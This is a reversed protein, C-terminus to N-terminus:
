RASASTTARGYPPLQLFLVAAALLLLSGLVFAMRYSGTLDHSVGMWVPSSGACLIFAAYQWGYVRGFRELGFYRTVLYGILDGEAGMAAGLGIAGGMAAAAGGSLLAVFGGVCVLCIAVAIHPAFFRDILWGTILRSGLLSVGIVGALSGAQSPTLGADILMPVFHSLMGAFGVAMTCLALMLLCFTRREPPSLGVSPSRAATSQSVDAAPLRLFLAVPVLGAAAIAALTYFGVQWGYNVIVGTLFRPTLAASLGIGTMLIGLARGRGVTFWASVARVLAIPGSGGALLGILFQLLLFVATSRTWAGLAVYLLALAAFAGLAPRRPGYRDILRGVIPNALAMGFTALSVGLGFQSRTLGIDRELASVFLGGTYLHLAAVGTAIALTSGALTWGGRRLESSFIM